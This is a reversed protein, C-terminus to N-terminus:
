GLAKERSNAEHLSTRATRVRRAQCDQSETRTSMACDVRLGDGGGVWEERAGERETRFGMAKVVVSEMQSAVAVVGIGDVEAIIQM